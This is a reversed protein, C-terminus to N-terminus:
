VAPFADRIWQLSVSELEGTAAVVDFRCALRRLDSHQQRFYQATRIIKQQKSRTVTAAPDGFRSHRRYRVEVFVLANGDRMVLDIEGSRCSYNKALCRLGQASLLEFAADEAEAGARTTNMEIASAPLRSEPNALSYRVM